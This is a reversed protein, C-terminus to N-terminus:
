SMDDTNKWPIDSEIPQEKAIDMLCIYNADLIYKNDKVKEDVTRSIIKGEKFFNKEKEELLEFAKIRGQEFNYTINNEKVSFYRTIIVNIPLEIWLFRISLVDEEYPLNGYKKDNGIKFGFGMFDIDIIKGIIKDKSVVTEELPFEAKINYDTEAIINARAHKLTLKNHRDEYVASVLLEGKMVADGPKVVDQGDFVDMKRIIGYRSAIINIPIDDDYKMEAKESTERILVEAVSGTINIEALAINENKNMINWEIDRVNHSKALTGRKFGSEELLKTIDTSSVKKNGSIDIAWVFNELLLFASFVTIIGFFLGIKRYNKRIYFGIGSKRKIRIILGLKRAPKRLKKYDKAKIKGELIYNNNKPCSIEIGNKICYNLFKENESGKAIFEVSNSLFLDM